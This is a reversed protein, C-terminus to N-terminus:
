VLSVKYYVTASVGQNSTTVLLRFNGGTLDSSFEVGTDGIETAAYDAVRVETGETAIIFMGARLSTGRVVAYQVNATRYTTANFEDIATTANDPVSESSAAQTGILYELLDLNIDSSGILYGNEDFVAVSNPTGTATPASSAGGALGTFSEYRIDSSYRGRGFLGSKTRLYSNSVRMTPTKPIAASRSLMRQLGLEFYQRFRDSRELDTERDASLWL